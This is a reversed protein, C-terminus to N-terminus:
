RYQNSRFRRVTSCSSPPAHRWRPRHREETCPPKSTHLRHLITGCAVSNKTGSGHQKQHYMFDHPGSRSLAFTSCLDVNIGMLHLRPFPGVFPLPPPALARFPGTQSASLQGGLVKFNLNALSMMAAPFKSCTTRFAGIVLVLTTRIVRILFLFDSYHLLCLNEQCSLSPTPSFALM